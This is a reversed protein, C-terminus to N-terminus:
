GQNGRVPYFREAMQAYKAEDVPMYPGYLMAFREPDDVVLSTIHQADRHSLPAGADTQASWCAAIAERRADEPLPEFLEPWRKEPDVEPLAEILEMIEYFLEDDILGRRLARNLDDVSGSVEFLLDVVLDKTPNVPM